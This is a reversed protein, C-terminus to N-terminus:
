KSGFRLLMGDILILHQNGCMLLITHAMNVSGVTYQYGHHFSTISAHALPMPQFCTQMSQARKRHKTYALVSLLLQSHLCDQLGPGLQLRLLYSCTGSSTSSSAFTVELLARLLDAECSQMVTVKYLLGHDAVYDVSQQMYWEAQLVLALEQATAAQWSPEIYTQNCISWNSIQIGAEDVSCHSNQL